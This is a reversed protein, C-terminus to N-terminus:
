DFIIEHGTLDTNFLNFMQGMITLNRRDQSIRQVEHAVKTLKTIRDAYIKNNIEYTYYNHMEISTKEIIDTAM